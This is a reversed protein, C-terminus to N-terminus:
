AEIIAVSFKGEEIVAEKFQLDQEHRLANAVMVRDPEPMRAGFIVARVASPAQYSKGGKPMMVRWEREYAWCEAKTLWLADLAESKAPGALDAASLSLINDSYRVAHAIKKLQTDEGFDYEVCFGRHHSAYHSWMLMSDPVASLCLVGIDQLLTRIGNRYVDYAEADGPRVGSLDKGALDEPRAQQVVRTIAHDLSERFKKRDLTVGCDFPDNFTSPKALWVTNNVLSALSYASLTQYKFLCTLMPPNAPGLTIEVAFGAPYFPPQPILQADSVELFIAQVNPKRGVHQAYGCTYILDDFGAVRRKLAVPVEDLDPLTRFRGLNVLGARREFRSLAFDLSEYPLTWHSEASSRQVKCM